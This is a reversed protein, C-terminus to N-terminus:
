AHARQRNAPLAASEPLNLRGRLQPMLRLRKVIKPHYLRALEPHSLPDALLFAAVVFGLISREQEILERRRAPAVPGQAIENVLVKQLGKLMVLSYQICALAAKAEVHRSPHAHVTWETLGPDTADAKARVIVAGLELEAPAGASVSRLTCVRGQGDTVFQVTHPLWSLWPAGSPTQTKTSM